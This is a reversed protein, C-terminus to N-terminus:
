MNPEGLGGFLFGIFFISKMREKRLYESLCEEAKQSEQRSLNELWTRERNHKHKRNYKTKVRHIQTGRNKIGKGM